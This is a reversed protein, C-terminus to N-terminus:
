NHKLSSYSHKVYTTNDKTTIQDGSCDYAVGDETLIQARAQGFYAINDETLLIVNYATNNKMEMVQWIEQTIKGEAAATFSFLFMAM